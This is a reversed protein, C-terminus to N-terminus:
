SAAEAEMEEIVKTQVDILCSQLRTIIDSDRDAELDAVVKKLAAQERVLERNVRYAVRLRKEADNLGIEWIVNVFVCLTLMVALAAIVWGAASM